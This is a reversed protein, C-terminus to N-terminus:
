IQSDHSAHRGHLQRRHHEAVGDLGGLEEDPQAVLLVVHAAPPELREDAVGIMRCRPRITFVSPSPARAVKSVGDSASAAPTM